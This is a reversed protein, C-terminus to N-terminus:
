RIYFLKIHSSLYRNPTQRLYQIDANSCNVFSNFGSLRLTKNYCLGFGSRELDIGADGTLCLRDAQLTRCLKKAKGHYDLRGIGLSHKTANDYAVATLFLQATCQRILRLIINIYKAKHSVSRIHLRKHDLKTCVKHKRAACACLRKCKNLGLAAAKGNYASQLVAARYHHKKFLKVRRSNLARIIRLRPHFHRLVQVAVVNNGVPM